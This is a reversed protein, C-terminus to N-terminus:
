VSAQLPWLSVLKGRHRSFEFFRGALVERLTPFSRSATLPAFIHLHHAQQRFPDPFIGIQGGTYAAGIRGFDQLVCQCGLSHLSPLPSTIVAGTYGRAISLPSRPARVRERLLRKDLVLSNCDSTRVEPVPRIEYTGPRHTASHHALVCSPRNAFTLSIGNKAGRAKRLSVVTSLPRRPQNSFRDSNWVHDFRLM